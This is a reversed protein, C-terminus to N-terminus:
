RLLYSISGTIIESMSGGHQKNPFSGKQLQWPRLMFFTFFVILGSTFLMASRMWSCRERQDHLTGQGKIKGAKFHGIYKKGSQWVYTGYGDPKNDKYQGAYTQNDSCTMSGDGKSCDKKACTCEFDALVSTCASLVTIPLMALFAKKM